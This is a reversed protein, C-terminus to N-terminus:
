SVYGEGGSLTVRGMSVSVCKKQLTLMAGSVLPVYTIFYLLHALILSYRKKILINQIQLQILTPSNRFYYYLSVFAVFLYIFFGNNFLLPNKDDYLFQKFFANFDIM